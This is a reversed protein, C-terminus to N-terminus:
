KHLMSRESRVFNVRFEPTQTSLRGNTLGVLSWGLMARVANPGGVQSIRYELTRHAKPIDAGILLAIGGLVDPLSVGQLVDAYSVLDQGSPISSKLDPLCPVSLANPLKIVTAENYDQIFLKVDHGHKHDTGSITSLSFHVGKSKAGM